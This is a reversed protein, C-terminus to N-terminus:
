TALSGQRGQLANILLEKYHAIATQNEEELFQCVSSLAYLMFSMEDSADRKPIQFRKNGQFFYSAQVQFHFIDWLVPAEWNASEWDFVLLEGRRVRTNWPAFDGHMVSCRLVNRQLGDSSRRLVERGLEEWQAGLSLVAGKWKEAVSEIIGSVPIDLPHADWLTTLFKEHLRNFTVPGREGDLASQFLIFNGNWEGAYLLRPIHPRLQPFSWLRELTKAENRVRHAAVPTLPLKMYGLIEGTTRMVQVTLKRVAAQRGLSLAFLVRDEGIAARVLGELPFADTSAILVKSCYRGNWGMRMMGTLVKKVARPALKHPEYMHTGALIGARAGAPLLWRPVDHSPIVIFSLTHAYGKEKLSEALERSPSLSFVPPLGVRALDPLEDDVRLAGVASGVFVELAQPLLSRM